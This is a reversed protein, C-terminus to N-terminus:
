AMALYSIVFQGGPIQPGHVILSHGTRELALTPGTVAGHGTSASIALLLALSRLKVTIGGPETSLWREDDQFVLLSVLPLVLATRRLAAPEQHSLPKARVAVFAQKSVSPV